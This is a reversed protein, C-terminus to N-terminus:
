KNTVADRISSRCIEPVDFRLVSWNRGPAALAACFGEPAVVDTIRWDLHAAAQHEDALLADEDGPVHSVSFARTPYGFGDGSAKVYAEKRTWIRFFAAQREEPALATLRAIEDPSFAKRAVGLFDVDRMTAEIDIGIERRSAIAILATDQAHSLNFCLESDDLLYPKGRAAYGFCLATPDGRVYAALLRRLIARAVIFRERVRSALFRDARTREDDALLARHQALAEGHAALTATWVHVEGSNLPPSQM